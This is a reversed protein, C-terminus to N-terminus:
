NKSREYRNERKKRAYNYVIISYFVNECKHIHKDIHIKEHKRYGCTIYIKKQYSSIIIINKKQNQLVNATSEYTIM